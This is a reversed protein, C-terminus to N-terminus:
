LPAVRSWELLRSARAATSELERQGHRAHDGSAIMTSNHVTSTAQEVQQVQQHTEPTLTPAEMATAGCRLCTAIRM